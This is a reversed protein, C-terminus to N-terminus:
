LAGPRGRLAPSVRPFFQFARRPGRIRGGAADVEGRKIRGKMQYASALLSEPPLVQKEKGELLSARFRRGRPLHLVPGGFVAGPQCARHGRKRKEGQRFAGEGGRDPGDYKERDSSTFSYNLVLLGMQLLLPFCSYYKRAAERCRAMVEDFPESSFDNALRYYLKKIDGKTMQPKYDVLEDISINFYSALQPLFVIDPYSQGNGV